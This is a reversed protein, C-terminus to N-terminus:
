VDAVSSFCTFSRCSIPLQVSIWLCPFYGIKISVILEISECYVKKGVDRAAIVPVGHEAVATNSIMWLSSTEVVVFSTIETRDFM